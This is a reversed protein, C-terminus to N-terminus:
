LLDALDAMAKTAARQVNSISAVVSEVDSVGARMCAQHEEIAHDLGNRAGQIKSLRLAETVEDSEPAVLRLGGYSRGVECLDTLRFRTERGSAGLTVVVQTKTARWATVRYIRRGRGYGSIAYGKAIWNPVTPM